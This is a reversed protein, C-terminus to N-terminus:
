GGSAAAERALRQYARTAEGNYFAEMYVIKGDEWTYIHVYEQVWPIGNRRGRNRSRVVAVNGEIVISWVDIKMGTSFDVGEALGKYWNVFGERGFFYVGLPSTTHYRAEIDEAFYAGWIDIDEEKGSHHYRLFETMLARTEETTMEQAVAPSSLIAGVLLALALKISKIM